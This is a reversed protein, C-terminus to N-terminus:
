KINIFIIKKNKIVIKVNKNIEIFKNGINRNALKIIDDVNSKEVNKANGVLKEITLLILNQKVSNSLKNFDKLDFAIEGVSIQSYSNFFNLASEKIFENEEKIIKSTRSLTEVINPNIKKILPLIENRIINRNYINEKNTSDIRPKLNNKECYNEIEERSINIFPRIFKGYEIEQIGELGRLGTGRILNLLMTEANDNQNHAIAIKNANNKELVEDFFKYRVERGTEETGKKLKKSLELINERKKFFPIKLKKCVNEVFEEDETSDKRILHNIHACIISYKLYNKFKNLCYLLAISDPGGSVGVVIVDNENILNNEKVTKLFKEELIDLRKAM